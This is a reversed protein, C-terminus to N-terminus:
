DLYAFDLYHYDDQENYQQRQHIKDSMRIAKNPFISSMVKNLETSDVM